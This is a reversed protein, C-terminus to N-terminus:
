ALDIGERFVLPIRDGDRDLSEQAAELLQVVRLGVKGGTRPAREEVIADVFEQCVAQLPEVKDIYPAHMDGRRYDVLARKRASPNSSLAVGKDYIKIKESPELDDYVIMKQSGGILTQRLKVPALWNVHVHAILSSDFKMTLYALNEREGFHTSGMASVWLPQRRLLYDMISLDHPTLDWIVNVDNQFIGLNIRVSDFYLIDGLEGSDLIAKIKQVAGSYVFTHDVMLTLGRSDALQVLTEAAEVSHAMPKEVLVHKGAELAAHAIGFHTHVPTCVVVADVQPDALVTELQTTTSAGPYRRGLDTVRQESTDCLTTLEADDLFSFNRAMNPGWYGCGVIAVRIPPSPAEQRRVTTTGPASERPLGPPPKSLVKNVAKEFGHDWRMHQWDKCDRCLDLDRWRGTRHLERFKQYVPSQWIEQISHDRLNAVVGQNFWDEVCFRVDGDHNVTVRKWFQPCPWRELGEDFYTESVNVIGLDTNLGRIVVEDVYQGWFERFPEIEELAEKQQIISTMVKTDSGLSNRLEILRKLNAVVQDFKGRKRIKEYTEKSYADLSVDIIDIPAQLLRRMMEENLAMANTTLDVPGIGAAKAEEVLDLFQPHLISEGDAAYRFVWLQDKFRRVEQVLKTHIAPEMFTGHYGPRKKMVPHACHTCAMDCVNTVAVIIIPPFEAHEEEVFGYAGPAVTEAPHPGSLMSPPIEELRRAM